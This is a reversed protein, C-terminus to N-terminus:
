EPQHRPTELLFTHLQFISSHILPVGWGRAVEDQPRERWLCSGERTVQKGFGPVSVEQGQGQDHGKHVLPAM